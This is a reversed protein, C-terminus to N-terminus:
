TEVLLPIFVLFYYPSNEYKDLFFKCDGRIVNFLPIIWIVISIYGCYWALSYILEWYVVTYEDKKLSVIKMKGHWEIWTTGGRDSCMLEMLSMRECLDRVDIQKCL